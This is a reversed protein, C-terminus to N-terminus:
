STKYPSRQPLVEIETPCGTGSMTLVYLITHAIDEPQIMLASNLNDSRSMSTNVFGPRITCVKTGYERIDEFLAQMYSDQGKVCAVHMGGGSYSGAVSGIKVIAGGSQKNIEDAAYRVFYYHSKFNIDLMNDWKDLEAEQAKGGEYIGSCNILFNLGGLLDVAQSVVSEISNLDSLDFVLPIGPAGLKACEGSIEALTSENRGLLVSTIGNSALAISAARGMGGSAGLVVAKKGALAQGM